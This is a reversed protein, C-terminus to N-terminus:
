EDFYIMEEECIDELDGDNKNEVEQQNDDETDEDNKVKNELQKKAEHFRQRQRLRKLKKAAKKKIEDEIFIKSRQMNLITDDKKVLQLYVGGPSRKRNGETTLMGGRTQIDETAYLLELAKKKGLVKVCRQIIDDKPERLQRTIEKGVADDSDLESAKIHYRPKSEDFVIKSGIRDKLNEPKTIIQTGAKIGLHQAIILHNKNGFISKNSTRENGSRTNPSDEKYKNNNISDYAENEYEYSEVGRERNSKKEQLMNSDNMNECLIEENLTDSWVRLSKKIRPNSSMKNAFLFNTKISRFLM